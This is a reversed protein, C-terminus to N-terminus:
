QQWVYWYQGQNLVWSESLPTTIGSMLRHDYTLLIGVKCVEADCDVSDIKVERFGGVRTKARFEPLTVVERSAPSLYLYAADIDGKLLAAWRANARETVAARRVEPSSDRSVGSGTTACGLVGQLVAVAAVSAVARALRMFGDVDRACGRQGRIGQEIM